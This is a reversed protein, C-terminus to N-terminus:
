VVVRDFRNKAALSWASRPSQTRDGASALHREDLQVTSTPIKGKAM